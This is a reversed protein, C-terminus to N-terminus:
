MRERKKLMEHIRILEFVNIYYSGLVLIKQIYNFDNLRLAINENVAPLSLPVYVTQMFIPNTNKMAPTTKSFLHGFEVGVYPDCTKGDAPIIYEGEFIEM